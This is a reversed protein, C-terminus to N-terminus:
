LAAVVIGLGIALVAMALAVGLVRADLLGFQRVHRLDTTQEAEPAESREVQPAEYPNENM